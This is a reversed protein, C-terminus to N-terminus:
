TSPMYPTDTSSYVAVLTEKPLANIEDQTPDHNFSVIANEFGVLKLNGNSVDDEVTIAKYEASLVRYVTETNTDVLLMNRTYKSGPVYDEISASGGGGGGGGISEILKLKNAISTILEQQDQIISCLRDIVDNNM